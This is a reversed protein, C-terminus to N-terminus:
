RSRGESEPQPKDRGESGSEPRTAPKRAGAQEAQDRKFKAPAFKLEAKSIPDAPMWMREAIEITDGDKLKFAWAKAGDQDFRFINLKGERYVHIACHVIKRRGNVEYEGRIIGGLREVFAGLTEDADLKRKGIDQYHLFGGLFVDSGAVPLATFFVRRGGIFDTKRTGEYKRAFTQHAGM